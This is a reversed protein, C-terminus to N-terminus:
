LPATPRASPATVMARLANELKVKNPNNKDVWLSKQLVDRYNKVLLYAEYFDGSPVNGWRRAYVDTFLITPFHDFKTQWISYIFFEFYRMFKRSLQEKDM